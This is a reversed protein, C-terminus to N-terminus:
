TQNIILRREAKPETTAAGDLAGAPAGLGHRSGASKRFKVGHNASSRRPSCLYL